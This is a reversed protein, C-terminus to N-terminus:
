VGYLRMQEVLEEKENIGFKEKQMEMMEFIKALQEQQIQQEKKREEESMKEELFHTKARLQATALKGHLGKEILKNLVEATEPDPDKYKKRPKKEKRVDDNLLLEDSQDLSTSEPDEIEDENTKEIENLLPCKEDKREDTEYQIEHDSISLSDLVSKNFFGAMGNPLEILKDEQNIDERETSSNQSIHYKRLKWQHWKRVIMRIIFPILLASLFTIGYVTLLNPDYIVQKLADILDKPPENLMGFRKRSM